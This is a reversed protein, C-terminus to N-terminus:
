KKEKHNFHRQKFTCPKLGRLASVIQAFYFEQARARLEETGLLGSGLSHLFVCEDALHSCEHVLTCYWDVSWDCPPLFTILGELVGDRAVRVVLGSGGDSLWDDVSPGPIGYGMASRKWYERDGVIALVEARPFFLNQIEVTKSIPKM